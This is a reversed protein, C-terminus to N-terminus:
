LPHAILTEVTAYRSADTKPRRRPFIRSFTRRCLRPYKVLDYVQNRAGRIMREGINSSRSLFKTQYEFLRLLKGPSTRKGKASELDHVHRNEKDNEEM